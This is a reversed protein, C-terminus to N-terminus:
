RHDREKENKRGGAEVGRDSRTNRGRARTTCPVLYRLSPVLDHAGFAQRSMLALRVRADASDQSPEQFAPVRQRRARTKLQWDRPRSHDGERWECHRLATCRGAGCICRGQAELERVRRAAWPRGQTRCCAGANSGVWRNLRGLSRQRCDMRRRASGSVGAYHHTRKLPAVHIPTCSGPAPALRRRSTVCSGLACTTSSCRGHSM